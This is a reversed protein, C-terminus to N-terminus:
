FGRALDIAAHASLAESVMPPCCLEDGLVPL